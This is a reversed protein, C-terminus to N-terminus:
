GQSLVRRRLLALSGSALVMAAASAPEPVSTAAVVKYDPGNDAAGYSALRLGAVQQDFKLGYAGVQQAGGIETTDISYCADRWLDRTIEFVSGITNGASDLAQVHLDSNMGREWFFFLDSSKEFFVDFVSPGSNDETDIINNLNLNGLSSVINAATPLEANIGSAHDGRDSSGPGRQGGTLANNVIIKAENVLNFESFTISDKTTSVLNIDKTPNPNDPTFKTTFNFGSVTAAGASFASGTIIAVISTSVSASLLFNRLAQMIRFGLNHLHIALLYGLSVFSRCSIDLFFPGLHSRAM